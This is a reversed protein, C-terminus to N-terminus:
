KFTKTELFLFHPRELPRKSTRIHELVNSHKAITLRLDTVIDKSQATM